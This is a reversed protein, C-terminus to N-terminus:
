VRPVLWNIQPYAVGVQAYLELVDLSSCTYKESVYDVVFMPCFFYIFFCNHKFLM